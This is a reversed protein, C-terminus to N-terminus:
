LTTALLNSEVIQDSMGKSEDCGCRDEARAVPTEVRACGEKRMDRRIPATNVVYAGQTSLKRTLLAGDRYRVAVYM